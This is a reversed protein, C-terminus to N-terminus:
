EQDPRIEVCAPAAKVGRDERMKGRPRSPRGDSSTRGMVARYNPGTPQLSVEV